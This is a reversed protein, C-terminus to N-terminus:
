ILFNCEERKYELWIDARDLQLMAIRLYTLNNICLKCSLLYNVIRIDILFWSDNTRYINQM